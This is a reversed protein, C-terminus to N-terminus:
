PHLTSLANLTLLLSAVMGTAAIVILIGSIAKVM